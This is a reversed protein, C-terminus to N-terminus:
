QQSRRSSLCWMRRSSSNSSQRQLHNTLSPSPCSRCALPTLQPPPQTNTTVRYTVSCAIYVFIFLFFLSFLPQLFSPIPRFFVCACCCRWHSFIIIIFCRVRSSSIYVGGRPAAASSATPVAAAGSTMASASPPISAGSPAASVSSSHAASATPASPPRHSVSSAQSAQAQQQQQQERVLDNHAKKCLKIIDVLVLMKREAFGTSLFQEVSLSPRYHFESRILRFVGEVFRADSKSFM